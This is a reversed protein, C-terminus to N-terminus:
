SKGKLFKIMTRVGRGERPSGRVKWLGTGPWFDIVHGHGLLAHADAVVLHAGDNHSTFDIQQARLVGASTKRNSARKEASRQRHGVWIEAQDGM